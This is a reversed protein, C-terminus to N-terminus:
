RSLDPGMWDNGIAFEVQNHYVLSNELVSTEFYMIADGVFRKAYSYNITKLEDRQLLLIFVWTALVFVAGYSVIAAYDLFHGSRM